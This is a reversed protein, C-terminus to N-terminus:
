KKNFAINMEQKDPPIKLYDVARSAIKAFVPAATSSAYYDGKPEDLIVLIVLKPSSAPIIGCFSAMYKSDSYQGTAPDIKQATGTKGAVSYYPVSALRGTGKEVVGRLMAMLDRAVRPSVTRRILKAESAFKVQGKWDKVQQVVQPTLLLGGNAISSYANVMQIATVGIEQGFSLTSLSLGSWEKPKKLLGRAEGDLEIGSLGYFGFQRIYTYLTAKGVRAAVKSFGINSSCQMVEDFSIMGKKEHDKIVHGCIKFKGNECWISESRKVLSNELAAAATVIKFTSGPEFVDTIVPNRLNNWSGEFGGPDFDPRSAMALIEGNTCDQIVVMAKKAKLSGWSNQLEQEAIFQLNRDITLYVNDGALKRGEILKESLLRGRGDRYCKENVPEASLSTNEQLEIGELGRGEKGLVGLLHCAMRGEPYKRESSAIFGIGRIKMARIKEVKDSELNEAVPIFSKDKSSNIKRASLEIDFKKLARETEGASRIFSPDAFLNYRRVSMALIQGNRDLIMGRLPQEPRQASVMRNVKQSFLEYNWIQIFFLRAGIATFLSLLLYFPLLAKSKNFM